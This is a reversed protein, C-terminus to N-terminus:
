PAIVSPDGPGRGAGPHAEHERHRRAADGPRRHPLGARRRRARAIAKERGQVQGRRIGIGGGRGQALGAVLVADAEARGERGFLLHPLEGAAPIVDGQHVGRAQEGLGARDRDRSIVQEHVVDVEGGVTVGVQAPHKGM